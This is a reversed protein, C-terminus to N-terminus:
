RRGTRPNPSPAPLAHKPYVVTVGPNNFYTEGPVFELAAPTATLLERLATRLTEAAARPATATSERPDPRHEGAAAARQLTGHLPRPFGGRDPRAPRDGRGGDLAADRLDGPM